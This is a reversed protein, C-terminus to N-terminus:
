IQELDHHHELWQTIGQHMGPNMDKGLDGQQAHESHHQGFERGFDRGIGAFGPMALTVTLAVITILTVFTQRM